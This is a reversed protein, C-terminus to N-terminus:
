GDMALLHRLVRLAEDGGGGGGQSASKYAALSVASVFYLVAAGAAVFAAQRNTLATRAIDLATVSTDTKRNKYENYMNLGILALTYGVVQTLTVPNWFIFISAVILAVDKVIGAISLVLGSTRAVLIVVALNLVFAALTNAAVAIAASQSAGLRALAAPEWILALPLLLAFCPPAFISISVLPSAKPLHQQLLIQTVVLRSGEFCVAAVQFAVGVGNWLLEGASAVIVGACMVAVILVQRRDFSEVRLAIGAGLTILPTLAKIMQVFSVSLRAAGLNSTALSAAYLVGIPLVNRLLVPVPFWPAEIVGAGRLAWTVGSAFAMHICTLTLPFPFVGNFLYKNFLIVTCSMTIWFVIALLSSSSASAAAGASVAASATPATASSPGPVSSTSDAVLPSTEREPADGAIQDLRNEMDTLEVDGTGKGSAMTVPECCSNHVIDRTRPAGLSINLVSIEERVARASM